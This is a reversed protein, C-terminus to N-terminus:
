ACFVVIRPLQALAQWSFWRPVLRKPGGYDDVRGEQTAHVPSRSTWVIHDAPSIEVSHLRVTGIKIQARQRLYLPPRVESSLAYIQCAPSYPQALRPLHEVTPVHSPIAIRRSFRLVQALRADLGERRKGGHRIVSAM